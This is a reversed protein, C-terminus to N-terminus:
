GIQNQNNGFLSSIITSNNESSLENPNQNAALVSFGIVGSMVLAIQKQDEEQIKKAALDEQGNVQGDENGGYQKSDALLQYGSLQSAREQQEAKEEEYVTPAANLSQLFEPNNELYEDFIKKLDATM